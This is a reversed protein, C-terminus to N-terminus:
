LNKNVFFIMADALYCALEYHLMTSGLNKVFEVNKLAEFSQIRQNKDLNPVLIKSHEFNERALAQVCEDDIPTNKEYFAAFTSLIENSKRVYATWENDWTWNKTLAVVEQEAQQLCSAYEEGLVSLTQDTLQQKKEAVYQETTKGKAMELNKIFVDIADVLAQKRKLETLVIEKQRLLDTKFDFGPDSFMQQIKKLDYGLDKFFIIQQLRILETTSYYRYGNDAVVAPKLLGIQDYFRITRVTVGTLDALKKITYKM